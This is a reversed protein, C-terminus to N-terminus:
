ASTLIPRHKRRLMMGLTAIASITLAWSSPEPVASFVQTIKLGGENLITTAGVHEETAGLGCRSSFGGDCQSALEVPAALGEVSVNLGFFDIAVPEGYISGGYFVNDTYQDNPLLGDIQMGFITGTIGEIDYSGTYGNEILTGGGFLTLQDSTTIVANVIPPGGAQPELVLDYTAAAAQGAMMAVMVVGTAALARFKMEIGV